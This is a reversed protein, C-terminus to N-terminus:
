ICGIPELRLGPPPGHSLAELFELIKCIKITFCQCEKESYDISKCNNKEAKLFFAIINLFIQNFFVKNYLHIYICFSIIKLKNQNSLVVAM